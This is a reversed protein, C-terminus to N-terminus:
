ASKCFNQGRQLRQGVTSALQRASDVSVLDLLAIDPAFPSPLGVDLALEPLTDPALM